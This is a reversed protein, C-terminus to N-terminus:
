RRLATRYRADVVSWDVHHLFATLYQERGKYDLLYAQEDVDCVLVPISGVWGAAGTVGVGVNHMAGDYPDHVLMAWAGAIRAGALFDERWGEFGGMQAGLAQALEPTPRVGARGLNSFYLEHLLAANAADVQQHKLAAYDESFAEKRSASKLAREALALRALSQRYAAYTQVLQAASLFGPISAFPLKLRERSRFGPAFGALSAPQAVPRAPEAPGARAAAKLATLIALAAGAGLLRRRGIVERGSVPPACLDDRKDSM